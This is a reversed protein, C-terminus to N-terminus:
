KTTQMSRVGALSRAKNFRTNRNEECRRTKVEQKETLSSLLTVSKTKYLVLAAPNFEFLWIHNLNWMYPTMMRRNPPSVSPSRLLKHQHVFLFFQCQGNRWTHMVKEIMKILRAFDRSGKSQIQWYINTLDTNSEGRLDLHLCKRRWRKHSVIRHQIKNQKYGLCHWTCKKQM